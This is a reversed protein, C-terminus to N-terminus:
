LYVARLRDEDMLASAHGFYSVRGTRLACVRDAIQLVSRVKQEVILVSVGETESIRRIRAFAEAALRPSLGLSPEDLLLLRPKRILVGGLALMQKEGGSLVSARQRLRGRLAPYYELVTEVAGSLGRNGDLGGGLVELNERVTLETFVRNGQPVYALGGKLMAAPTSGTAERGHLKVTGKWVDLLGFVSRLLTSKGAGNHGIVALIEGPQVDLTVGNLVQKKGYGTVLDTVQLLAQPSESM